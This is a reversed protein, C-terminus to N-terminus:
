APMARRYQYRNGKKGEGVRELETGLKTMALQARHQSLGTKEQISEFDMEGDGIVELVLDCDGSSDVPAFHSLMEKKRRMESDMEPEKVKSGEDPVPGDVLFGHMALIKKNATNAIHKRLGDEGDPLRDFDYPDGNQDYFEGNQLFVPPAGALTIQMTPVSSEPHLTMTGHDARYKTPKTIADTGVSGSAM